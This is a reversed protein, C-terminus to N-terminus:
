YKEIYPCDESAYGRRGLTHQCANQQIVLGEVGEILNLKAVIVCLDHRNSPTAEGMPANKDDVLHKPKPLKLRGFQSQFCFVGGYHELCSSHLKYVVIIIM